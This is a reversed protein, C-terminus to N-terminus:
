LLLKEAEKYEGKSVLSVLKKNLDRNVKKQFVSNIMSRGKCREKIYETSPVKVPVTNHLTGVIDMSANYYGIGHKHYHALVMATFPEIGQKWAKLAHKIIKETHSSGYYRIFKFMMRQLCGTGPGSWFVLRGDKDLHAQLGCAKLYPLIEKERKGKTASFFIYKHRVNHMGSSCQKNRIYYKYVKEFDSLKARETYRTTTIYAEM